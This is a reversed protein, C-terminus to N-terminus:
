VRVIGLLERARACFAEAAGLEEDLAERDLALAAGYDAEERYKQLRAVVRTWQPELRGARVYHLNLLHQVGEHSRPQLGEAFLLARMAHFVAYYVRTMAPRYLGAEVLTRAAALEEDTRQLEEDAAIRRNEGTM